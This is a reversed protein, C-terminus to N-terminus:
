TGCMLTVNLAMEKTTDLKDKTFRANMSKCVRRMPLRVNNALKPSMFSHMAGADFLCSTKREM